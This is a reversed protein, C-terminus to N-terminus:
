KEELKRGCEPCFYLSVTYKKVDSTLNDLITCIHLPGIKEHKCWCKMNVGVSKLKKGCEPCFNISLSEDASLRTDTPSECWCERKNKPEHHCHLWPIGSQPAHKNWYERCKWCLGDSM